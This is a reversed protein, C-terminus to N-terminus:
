ASEGTRRAIGGRPAGAEIAGWLPEFGPPLARSNPMSLWLRMLFRDRGPASRGRLDTRAHYVVHNNLLQVDGPELEM